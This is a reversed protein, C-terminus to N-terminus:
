VLQPNRLRLTRNMRVTALWRLIVISAILLVPWVFIRFWSRRLPWDWIEILTSDKLHMSTALSLGDESFCNFQRQKLSATLQSTAADYFQIDNDKMFYNIPAKLAPVLNGLWYRFRDWNSPKQFEYHDVTVTNNNPIIIIKYDEEIFIGRPLGDVQGSLGRTPVQALMKDHELDFVDDTSPQSDTASSHRLLFRGSTDHGHYPKFDAYKIQQTEIDFCIVYHDDSSGLYFFTPLDYKIADPNMALALSYLTTNPCTMYAAVTAGACLSLKVQEDRSHPIVLFLEKGNKSFWMKEQWDNDPKPSISISKWLHGTEVSWFDISKGSSNLIALLYGQSPHHGICALVSDDASKTFRIKQSPIDWVVYRSPQSDISERFFITRGDQIFWPQDDWWWLRHGPRFSILNRSSITDVVFCQVPADSAQYQFRYSVLSGDPSLTTSIAYYRSPTEAKEIRQEWRIKSTPVDWVRLWDHSHVLLSKRDQSFQLASFYEGPINWSQQPAYGMLHYLLWASLGYVALLVISFARQGLFKLLTTLRAM